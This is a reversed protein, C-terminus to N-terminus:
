GRFPSFDAAFRCGVIAVPAHNRTSPSGAGDGTAESLIPEGMVCGASTIPMGGDRQHGRTASFPEATRLRDRPGTASRQSKSPFDPQVADALVKARLAPALQAISSSRRLAAYYPHRWAHPDSSLADTM